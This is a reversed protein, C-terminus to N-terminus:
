YGHKRQKNSGFRIAPSSEAGEFGKRKLTSTIKDDRISEFFEKAEYYQNTRDEPVNKKAIRTYLIYIIFYITYEILTYNRNDGAKAFEHDIDIQRSLMERIKSMAMKEAKEREFSANDNSIVGLEEDNIIAQYDSLEIFAM